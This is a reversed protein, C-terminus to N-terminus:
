VEASLSLAPTFRRVQSHTLGPFDQVRRWEEPTEGPADLMAAHSAADAWEAFNLARSGDLGVHFHASLAGDRGGEGSTAGLAAFVTDVWERARVPDPADFDVEVVAVSGPLRDDGETVSSRYLEYSNLGLRRVGPVAADIEDNRADRGQRFFARHAEDDAWQSYHLLTRGDEGVYVSYSLPGREPWERSTWAKEIADVAARQAEPSGVDWTSVKVVGVGSRTVDPRSNVAVATM